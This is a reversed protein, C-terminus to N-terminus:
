GRPESEESGSWFRGEGLLKGEQQSGGTLVGLWALSRSSVSLARQAIYLAATTALILIFPEIEWRYRTIVEFAAYVATLYLFWFYFLSYLRWQGLSLVLGAIFFVFIIAYVIMYPVIWRSDYVLGYEGLDARSRGMNSRFWWFSIIKRGVLGLWKRPNERIFQLGALYLARDLEVETLADLQSELGRPLPYPRLDVIELDNTEEDFQIGAYKKVEGVVVDFASGTTFPNNGNWFTFGGHTSIPVIQHHIHYNRITWPLITLLAFLVIGSAARQWDAIAQRNLWIWCVIGPLLGLTSPRGLALLGVLAGTIAWNCFRSQQLTHLLLFALASLLFTHLTVAFPRAAQIVFVPYVATVMASLLGVVRGSLKTAIWYVFICTLSSLFAQSVGLALAPRDTCRLFFALFFTYLPPKFSQLPNSVRYGYFDFTYGQGNVLRAANLGHEEAEIIDPVGLVLVAGLRTSLALLFIGVLLLRNDRWLVKPTDGV